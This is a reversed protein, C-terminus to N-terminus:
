NIKNAATYHVNNNLDRVELIVYYNGKDLTEMKLEMEERAIPHNNESVSEKFSEGINAHTYTTFYFKDYDGEYLLAYSVGNSDGSKKSINVINGENDFSYVVKDEPAYEENTTVYGHGKIIGNNIITSIYENGVKLYDKSLDITLTNGDIIVDDGYKVQSYINGDRSLVYYNVSQIDDKEEDTLELKLVKDTININNTFHGNDLQLMASSTLSSKQKFTFNNIFKYYENNFETDQYVKLGYEKIRSSGRYPFYISLCKSNSEGFTNTYCNVVAEEFATLVKRGDYSSYTKLKDVLYYLDVIDFDEGGDAITAYQYITSRVRSIQSYNSNVNIGEFFKGVENSLNDIKSLDITSYAMVINNLRGRVVTNQYYSEAFKNGITKFDMSGTIDNLFDLVHVGQGGYTVEESAVIYDAYDKFVTSVEYSSNVCTRFIVGELKNSKTFPSNEFSKRFNSLSMMASHPFNDDSIAGNWAGGHSYIILDYKDAKYNQYGYKLFSSLTDPETMNLVAYTQKKVFGDRTLEYIANENSDVFNYWKTSGGTYVIINMNDLDVDKPMISNLDSTAAMVESELNSASIYVMITRKKGGGFSLGRSAVFILVGVIAVLCIAAVVFTNKKKGQNPNYQYGNMPTIANYVPQQVQQIPQTQQPVQVQQVPQVPVVSQTQEVANTAINNEVKKGCNSCFQSGDDLKHGCESCFM